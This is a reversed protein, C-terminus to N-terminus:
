KEDTTEYRKEIEMIEPFGIISKMENFSVFSPYADDDDAKLAHLHTQIVKTVSFLLTPDTVVSYGIDRLIDRSLYPIEGGRSNNGWTYAKINGCFQKMEDIDKLAEMFIVDAGEEEFLKCRSMAEDFDATTRADTRAMIVIDMGSEERADVAARIKMRAEERTVVEKVGLHGCRKPIAQDEIMIGAVGARAYEVVTRRVSMANGYGNDADAFIPFGPSAGCINQLQAVMETQTTLGIDPMGLRTAAVGYGSIFVFDFGTQRALITSLTDYCCPIFHTEPLRLIERLKKATTM